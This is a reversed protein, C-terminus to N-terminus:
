LQLRWGKRRVYVCPHYVHVHMIKDTESGRNTLMHWEGTCLHTYMSHKVENLINQSSYITQTSYM